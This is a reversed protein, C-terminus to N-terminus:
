LQYFVEQGGGSQLNNLLVNVLSGKTKKTYTKCDKRYDNYDKDYLVTYTQMGRDCNYCYAIGIHHINGNQFAPYNNLNWRYESVQRSPHLCLPNNPYRTIVKGARIDEEVEPKAIFDDDWQKLEMVVAIAKKMINRGLIVCDARLDKSIRVELIVLCELFDKPSKAVSRFLEKLAKINAKWSDLESDKILLRLEKAKIQM